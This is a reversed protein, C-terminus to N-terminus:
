SMPEAEGAATNVDEASGAIPSNLSMPEAEGAATKVDEASGAIPYNLPFL